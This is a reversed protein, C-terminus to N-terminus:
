GNDKTNEGKNETQNASTITGTNSPKEQNQEHNETETQIQASVNGPTEGAIQAENSIELNLRERIKEPINQLTTANAAIEGFANKEKLKEVAREYKEVSNEIANEIGKLAAEPANEYVESLVELRNATSQALREQILTIDIGKEEAIATMEDELEAIKAAYDLAENVDDTVNATVNDSVRARAREMLKEITESSIDLAREPKNKGLRRLAMIQSNITAVKAREITAQAEETATAEERTEEDAPTVNASAKPPLKDKLESLRTHIRYASAALRESVNDSTGNKVAAELRENVMAMFGDYDNTARTMERIKNKDAMAQAESLREEAYRLAKEAKAEDGFTFFLSINKGWTDLFYFPSDPTLGPDPLEEDQAYVAGGWLLSTILLCSVLTIRLLRQKM